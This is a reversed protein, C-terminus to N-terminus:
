SRVIMVEAKTQREAIAYNLVATAGAALFWLGKSQFEASFFAMLLITTVMVGLALTGRKGRRWGTPIFSAVYLLLMIIGLIGNEVLTKIWGSHAQKYTGAFATEDFDANAYAGSFGGTGVGLPKGMFIAWGVIAV